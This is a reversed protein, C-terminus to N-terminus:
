CLYPSLVHGMSFSHQFHDSWLNEWLLPFFGKPYPTVICHLGGSSDGGRELGLDYEEWVGQGWIVMGKGVM